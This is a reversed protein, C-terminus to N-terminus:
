SYPKLFSHILKQAETSLLDRWKPTISEGFNCANQSIPKVWKPSKILVINILDVTYFPYFFYGQLM